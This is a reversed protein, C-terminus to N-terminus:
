EDDKEAAAEENGADPEEKRSAVEHILVGVELDADHANHDAEDDGNGERGEQAAGQKAAAVEKISAVAATPLVLLRRLPAVAIVHAADRDGNGVVSQDNLARDPSM